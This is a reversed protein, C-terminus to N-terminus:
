QIPVEGLSDTITGTLQEGDQRFVFSNRGVGGDSTRYDADWRGTIDAAWGLVTSGALLSILLLTRHLRM